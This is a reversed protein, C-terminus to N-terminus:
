ADAIEQKALDYCGYIVAQEPRQAKVIKPIPVIPLEYTKLRDMLYKEYCDFYTGISGGIIVIDPQLIAVHEFIGLSLNHAISQWAGEDTIQAAPKGFKQYIARGSAFNEWKDIRGEDPLLLHGGESKVLAPEIRKNYIFGSGIGTSVTLYLVARSDKHLMAESLAAMNADNEIVFPCGVIQECDSKVSANDWHVHPSGLSIGNERDILGPLGIGGGRLDDTRLGKRWQSLQDLFDEYKEPTPFKHRQTIVGEDNLLAVLTKTGGVDVGIYMYITYCKISGDSKHGTSSEN